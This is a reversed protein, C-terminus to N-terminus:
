VQLNVTLFRNAFQNRRLFRGQQLYSKKSGDMRFVPLRLLLCPSDERVARAKKCM